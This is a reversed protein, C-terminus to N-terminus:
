PAIQLILGSLLGLGNPKAAGLIVPLDTSNSYGGAFVRGAADTAVGTIIDSQSGGFTTSFVLAEAGRRAPDLSAIFGATLPFGPRGGEPFGKVPFDRSLTYGGIVLKGDPQMLFGYVVDTGAGGLYTSYRLFGAGAQAPDVQMIFVDAAGARSLQYAGPTVVLDDSHTYGALWLTGNAGPALTTAVDLASGGIYTAYLLVDFGEKTPDLQALFIDGRGQQEALYSAGALPFDDAITVGTVWLKGTGDFVLGNPIDTSNGGLFTASQLVDATDLFPNYTAVFADLGGRNSPQLPALKAKPLEGADTYGAIAIVGGPSVAVAQPYENKSTGFYTSFTLAFEWWVAPDYRMVFGDYGGKNDTQPANGAIPFGTISNTYGTIYLAGAADIVMATAVEEGGSGLYTWYAVQPAGDEGTVIKALFVDTSGKRTDQYPGTGEPIPMVSSATGAVWFGGGPAPAVSAIQEINTGGLFGSYSIVPDIILERSRDYRGLEVRVERGKLSYRAEVPERRGDAEQYAIPRHQRIELGATRILLDGEATLAVGNGSEIRLGIRRPDAGPAVVFDYELHKGNAYSVVDIGPWVAGARVRAYHPVDNRWRSRDSGIMYRSVGERRQEGQWRVAKVGAFRLGFARVFSNNNQAFTLEAGRADLRVAGAAGRSVFAGSDAAPEYWAPISALLAEGQRVAGALASM